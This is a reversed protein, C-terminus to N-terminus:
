GGIPKPLKITIKVDGKDPPITVVGYERVRGEGVWRAIIRYEAIAWIEFVAVGDQDTKKEEIAAMTRDDEAAPGNEIVTDPVPEGQEGVVKIELRRKGGLDPLRFTLERDEEGDGIVIPTASKFEFTGPYLVQPLPSQKPQNQGWINTGLYYTGPMVGVMLFEGKEDTKFSRAIRYDRSNEGFDWGMLNFGETNAVPQGLHDLIRGSLRSAPKLRVVLEGCAGPLVSIRVPGGEQSYTPKAVSVTYSGPSLSEVRLRGDSGAIGTFRKGNGEVKVEAFEVEALTPNSLVRLRLVASDRKAVAQRFEQVWPNDTGFVIGDCSAVRVDGSNDRRGMVFRRENKALSFEVLRVRVIRADKDLGWLAEDIAFTVLSSQDAKEVSVVTGVFVVTDPELVECLREPGACDLGLALPAVFVLLCWPRIM